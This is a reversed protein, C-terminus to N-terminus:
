PRCGSQVRHVRSRRHGVVDTGAALAARGKGWPARAHLKPPSAPLGPADQGAPCAPLPLSVAEQARRRLGISIFKCEDYFWHTAGFPAILKHGFCWNQNNRVHPNAVENAAVGDNLQQLLSKWGGRD